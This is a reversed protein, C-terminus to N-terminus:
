LHNHKEDSAFDKLENFIKQAKQKSDKTKCYELTKQIDEVGFSQYEAIYLTPM